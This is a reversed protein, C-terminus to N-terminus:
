ACRHLFNFIARIRTWAFAFMNLIDKYCLFLVHALVKKMGQYVVSPREHLTATKM